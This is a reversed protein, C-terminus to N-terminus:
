PLEAGCLARACLLGVAPAVRSSVLTLRRLSMEMQVIASPEETWGIELSQTKRIPVSTADVFERHWSQTVASQESTGFWKSIVELRSGMKLFSVGRSTGAANWSEVSAPQFWVASSQRMNISNDGAPHIPM